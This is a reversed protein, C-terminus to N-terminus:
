GSMIAAKIVSLSEVAALAENCSDLGYRATIAQRFPYRASHRALMQLGRTVHHFDTGWQGRVEAHKRNIEWHPNLTTSGTDSYHGSIVYVGGDRLLDLGENVTSPHGAAEIAVDVGRGGTLEHVVAKREQPSLSLSLTVDVGMKKAFTLREEPAGIMIVLSAGRLSAFVAAAIGVPGSGQVLVVDGMAMTSREISAYGTFLGCGGGILDEPNMSDPLRLVRVGPKLYIQEAWGGVLGDNASM